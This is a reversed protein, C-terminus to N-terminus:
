KKDAKENADKVGYTKTLYDVVLDFEERTLPAGEELMGKIEGAWQDRTLAETSIRAFEHCLICVTEVLEKGRNGYKSFLYETVAATDSPKLPAGKAIM